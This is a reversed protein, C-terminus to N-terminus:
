PLYLAQHLKYHSEHFTFQSDTYKNRLLADWRNVEQTLLSKNWLYHHLEARELTENCSYSKLVDRVQNQYITLEYDLIKMEAYCCAQIFESEKLNLHREHRGISTSFIMNSSLHSSNSQWEEGSQSVLPMDISEREIAPLQLSKNLECLTFDPEKVLDEYRVLKFNRNEALKIAFAVSKRWQRINFMIPKQYGTYLQGDGFNHSTIVDRPDRIVIIVKWGHELLYESYEECINEKLGVLRNAGNNKALCGQKLQSSLSLGENKTGFLSAENEKSKYVTLYEKFKVPPHHNHFYLDHLPYNSVFSSEKNEREISHIYEKKISLFDDFFPQSLINSYRNASLLKDLLTTGSRLM